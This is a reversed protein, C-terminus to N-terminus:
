KVVRYAPNAPYGGVPPTGYAGAVNGPPRPVNKFAQAVPTQAPAGTYTPNTNPDPTYKPPQTDPAPAPTPAPFVAERVLNADRTQGPQAETKFKPNGPMYEALAPDRALMQDTTLGGGAGGGGLCM